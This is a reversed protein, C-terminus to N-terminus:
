ALAQNAIERMSELLAYLKPGPKLAPTETTEATIAPLADFPGFDLHTAAEFARAVALKDALNMKRSRAGFMSDIPGGSARHILLWPATPSARVVGWRAKASPAYGTAALPERQYIGNPSILATIAHRKM